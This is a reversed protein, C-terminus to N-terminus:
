FDCTLLRLEQIPSCFHLSFVQSREGKQGSPGVQDPGQRGGLENVKGGRAGAM